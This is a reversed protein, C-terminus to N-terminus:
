AKDGHGLLGHRNSGGAARPGAKTKEPFVPRRPPTENGHADMKRLLAAELGEETFLWSGGIRVAGLARAHAYTWKLSRKVKAAIEEATRVTISM